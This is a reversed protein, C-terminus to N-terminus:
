YGCEFLTGVYRVRVKVVLAYRVLTGYKKALILAYRIGYKRVYRVAMRSKTVVNHVTTKTIRGCPLLKILYIIENTKVQEIKTLFYRLSPHHSNLSELFHVCKDENNFVIFTDDVYRCYM